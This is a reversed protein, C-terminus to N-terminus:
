ALSSASQYAPWSVHRSYSISAGEALSGDTFVLAKLEELVEAVLDERDKFEREQGKLAHQVERTLPDGQLTQGQRLQRIILTRQLEIQLILDRACSIARPRLEMATEFDKEVEILQNMKEIDVRPLSM